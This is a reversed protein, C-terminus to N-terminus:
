FISPALAGRTEDGHRPRVELFGFMQALTRGKQPPFEFRMKANQKERMVAGAFHQNM